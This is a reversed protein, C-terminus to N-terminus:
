GHDSTPAVTADGQSDQGGPPTFGAPPHMQALMDSQRQLIALMASANGNTQDRVQNVTGLTGGVLLAIVLGVIATTDAGRWTLAGVVTFAGILTVVQPWGLNKIM